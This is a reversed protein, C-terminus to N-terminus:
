HFQSRRRHTSTGIRSSPRGNVITMGIDMAPRVMFTGLHCVLGRICCAFRAMIISSGAVLDCRWFYSARHKGPCRRGRRPGGGRQWTPHRAPGGKGQARAHKEILTASACFIAPFALFLGGTEPGFLSAIAGTGVTALGGLVFRVLYEHWRTERLTSLKVRINVRSGSSSGNEM